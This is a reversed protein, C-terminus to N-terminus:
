PDANSGLPLTVSPGPLVRNAATERARSHFLVNAPSPEPKSSPIRYRPRVSRRESALGDCDTEYDSRAASTRPSLAKGADKLHPAGSRKSHRAWLRGIRADITSPCPARCGISTETKNVVIHRLRLVVHHTLPSQPGDIGVRPIKREKGVSQKITVHMDGARISAEEDRARVRELLVFAAPHL